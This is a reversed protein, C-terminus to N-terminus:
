HTAGTTREPVLGPAVQRYVDLFAERQLPWGVRDYARRGAAAIATRLDPSQALRVLQGALDAADGPEFFAITADDFDAATAELRSAICPLGAIWYDYMKNTHVLHSYTSAKQAVLGVDASRLLEALREDSVWGEYTVRDAVGAREIRDLMDQVGSGRGTVVLHLGPIREAAIAVADIITDHGYRDEITGHCLAVFREPGDHSSADAPAAPADPLIHSPDPGNLVVSIREGNAGREVYRQRLRDTVTIAHDAFRLAGQEALTMLRVMRGGAGLTAALEPTPEQMFAVVPVGLLKPVVAAFVLFDPMTNVQVARYRHRIQLVALAVTSIVLFGGYDVLYGLAGGRTKSGPLRRFTVDGSRQVWPTGREGLYLVECRVGVSVLAEVERRLDLEYDRSHRLFAVVPRRAM